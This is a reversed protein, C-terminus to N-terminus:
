KPTSSTSAEYRVASSAPARSIIAGAPKGPPRKAMTLSGCPATKPRCMSDCPYTAAAHGVVRGALRRGVLECDVVGEEVDGDLLRPDTTVLAADRDPRREDGVPPDEPGPPVPPDLM